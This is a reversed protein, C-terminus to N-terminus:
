SLLNQDIWSRRKRVPQRAQPNVKDARKFKILWNRIIIICLKYMIFHVFKLQVMRQTKITTNVSYAWCESDIYLFM